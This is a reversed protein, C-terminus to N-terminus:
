EVREGDGEGPGEEWEPEDPGWVMTAVIQKGVAYVVDRDGIEACWIGGGVARCTM